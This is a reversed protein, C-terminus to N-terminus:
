RAKHLSYVRAQTDLRAQRDDIASKAVVGVGPTVMAKDCM